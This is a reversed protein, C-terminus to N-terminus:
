RHWPSRHGSQTRSSSTAVGFSTSLSLTFAALSAIVATFSASSCLQSANWKIKVWGFRKVIVAFSFEIWHKPSMAVCEVGGRASAINDPLIETWRLINAKQKNIIIQRNFPPPNSHIRYISKARLSNRSFPTQRTECVTPVVFVQWEASFPSNTRMSHMACWISIGVCYGSPVCISRWDWEMGDERWKNIFLIATTIAVGSWNIIILNCIQYESSTKRQEVSDIKYNLTWVISSHPVVSHYPFSFNRTISPLWHILHTWEIWKWKMKDVIVVEYFPILSWRTWPDMSEM